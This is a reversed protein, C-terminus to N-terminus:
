GIYVADQGSFDVLLGYSGWFFRIKQLFVIQDEPEAWLCRWQMSFAEPRGLSQIAQTQRVKAMM